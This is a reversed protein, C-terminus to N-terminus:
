NKETNEATFKRLVEYRTDRQAPIKGAGKIIEIMLAITTQYSVGTAHLVKEEMLIGGLDNAGFALGIQALKHGETVWGTHINPINDLMIRSIALTKLYDIGGAPQIDSFDTNAPSFTWPIFAKFGGTKDQLDRIRLMHEIREAKTEMMGFTMTATTHMGISHATEMIELWQATNIKHPSVIKRVRDVLIEAAGPLSDLGADKLRLLVDRISLRSTKSLCYIETPSLSHLWVAFRKKIESLLNCYYDLSLEPNIGGQLLVQTGGIQLLEEIKHFIEEEPLLYADKSEPKVSFACFRCGLVCVNTFTINRDIIFTAMNKPHYKKMRQNAIRGLDLLDEEFLSIGEELSLRKGSYANDLINNM